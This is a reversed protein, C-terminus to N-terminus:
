PSVFRWTVDDPEVTQAIERAGLAPLVNAWFRQARANGPLVRLCWRGPPYSALLLELARASVGQGRQAHTVFFESLHHDADEPMYKFPALGVCAFGVPKGACVIVHCRQFPQRPDNAAVPTRLNVNPTVAAVWHPSIHPQWRGVADLTYFTAGFGRLEHVYMPWTNLFFEKAERTSSAAILQVQPMAGHSLM